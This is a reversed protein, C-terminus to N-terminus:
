APPKAVPLRRMLLLPSAVALLLAATVIAPGLGWRDALHGLLPALGAVLLTRLQAEISLGTAMTRDPILCALYGVVLPRRVNQLAYGLAFAVVALGLLGSWTGAGAALILGIGILLTANAASALSPARREVAGARSAAFSSGAYILAYMGGIVVAGRRSDEFRVLLPIALAFAQLIPQLYDKTSKFLADFSASSLLGIVLRRQRLVLLSARATERLRPWVGKAGTGAARPADFARPYRLINMLGLVYPVLSALFVVRYGGTWFVLAAAIIAACTSGMQSAARTRGYYAVKQDEMGRRRLHDLIIAKHTGSRLAEGAGFLMMAVVFLPFGCRAYLIAFSMLYCVFAAVLARRRGFTDALVGTPIELVNATIERLSYLTGIALFSLGADRFFLVLFPDFFRLNKLFGYCRFRLFMPDSGCAAEGAGRRASDRRTTRRMDM